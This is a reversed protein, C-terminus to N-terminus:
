FAALHFDLKHEAPHTLCSGDPLLFWNQKRRGCHSLNSMCPFGACLVGSYSLLQHARKERRERGSVCWFDHFFVLMCCRLAMYGGRERPAWYWKEGWQVQSELLHHTWMRRGRFSCLNGGLFMCWCQSLVPGTRGCPKIGAEKNITELADKSKKGARHRFTTLLDYVDDEQFSWLWAKLVQLVHSRHLTGADIGAWMAYPLCMRCHIFPSFNQKCILVSGVPIVTQMAGKIGCCPFSAVGVLNVKLSLLNQCCDQRNLRAAAQSSQRSRRIQQAIRGLFCCFSEAEHNIGGGYTCNLTHMIM